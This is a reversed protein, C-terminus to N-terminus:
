RIHDLSRILREDKRIGHIAMCNLIVCIVSFIAMACLQFSINANPAAEKLKELYVWTFFAYMAVYGVLLITTFITLRLQHMRHNFLFITTLNLLAVIILIAGLSWPGTSEMGEFLKQDADFSFNTFSAVVSGGSVYKGITAFLSVTSLIASLALYVSQIRQIM